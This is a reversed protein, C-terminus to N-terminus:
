GQQVIREIDGYIDGPERTGAVSHL